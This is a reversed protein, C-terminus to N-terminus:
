TMFVIRPAYLATAPLLVSIVWALILAIFLSSALINNNSKRYIWSKLFEIIIFLVILVLPIVINIPPVSSLTIGMKQPLIGNIDIPLGSYILIGSIIIGLGLGEITGTILATAFLEKWAPIFILTESRYRSLKNQILGRFM